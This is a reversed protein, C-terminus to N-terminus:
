REEHRGIGLLGRFQPPTFASSVRHGTGLTAHSVDLWM